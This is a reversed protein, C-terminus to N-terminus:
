PRAEFTVRLVVPAALPSGNVRPPRAQWTGVAREAESALEAPGGLSVVERFRGDHDIVAQVAIWRGVAPDGAPRTPMPASVLSAGSSVMELSTQGTGGACAGPYVAEVALGAAPADMGVQIAASGPPAGYGYTLTRVADASGDVPEAPAPRGAGDVVRIQSAAMPGDPCAQGFLVVISRPRSFGTPPAEPDIPAGSEAAARAQRVMLRFHDFAVGSPRQEPGLAIPDASFGTRGAEALALSTMQGAAMFPDPPPLGLNMAQGCTFGQPIRVETFHYWDLFLTIPRDLGDHSVEYTDIM